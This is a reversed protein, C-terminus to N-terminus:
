GKVGMHVMSKVIWKQCVMFIILVPLISLCVAAFVVNDGTSYPQKILLIGVPLSVKNTSNIMIFTTFYDNWSYTFVIIMLSVLMTKAMPLMISFFTRITGAGDITAAEEMEKPITMFFQRMMFIGFAGALGPCMAGLISPLTVAWSTNILGLMNMIKYLPVITVQVPIMMAVLMLTFMLNRGKFPIRAYAYGAIAGNFVMGITILSSMKFSNKMFTFFPIDKSFLKKIYKWDWNEIAPPLWKPPLATADSYSRISASFVWLFPAIVAFAIVTMIIVLIIQNITFSINGIKIKRTM